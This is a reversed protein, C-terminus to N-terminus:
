VALGVQDFITENDHCGNYVINEVPDTGYALPMGGFYQAQVGKLVRGDAVQPVACCVAFASTVRHCSDNPTPV